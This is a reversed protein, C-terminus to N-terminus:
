VVYPTAELLLFALDTQNRNPRTSFGFQVRSRNRNDTEVSISNPGESTAWGRNLAVVFVFINVM